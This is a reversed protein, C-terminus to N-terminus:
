KGEEQEKLRQVMADHELVRIKMEDVHGTLNEDIREARKEVRDVRGDILDVKDEVRGLDRGHEHQRAQVVEVTKAIMEVTQGSTLGNETSVEKRIAKSDRRSRIAAVAAITAPLGAVAAVIVATSDIM